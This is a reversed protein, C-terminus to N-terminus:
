AGKRDPYCLVLIAAETINPALVEGTVQGERLVIVRDCVALEELESSIMLVGHGANAFARAIRHIEQRAGVDVGRTPEDLILFELDLRLWRGLLVKQQNGGSLTRVPSKVSLSRISFRDIVKRGEAAVKRM